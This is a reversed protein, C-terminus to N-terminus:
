SPIIREFNQLIPEISKETKIMGKLREIYRAEPWNIERKEYYKSMIGVYLHPFILAEKLVQWKWHDLPNLANYWQLIQSTLKLDWQGKKKMIKNLFKRIDRTPLDITISDIDLVFIEKSSTLILNSATFDQHCLCNTSKAENSWKDYGSKENESIALQMRKYFYPFSSIIIQGFESHNTNSMETDYFDKLKQIQDQFEQKQLGLHLRPKCDDPFAFGRSAYHFTALAEVIMKLEQPKDENPTNGIIADSLVYCCNVGKIYNNNNKTKIINSLNVERNKLHEVASLIFELTKSSCSHKKLVKDGATTKIWWIAKKGKDSQQKIDVININYQSLILNINEQEM